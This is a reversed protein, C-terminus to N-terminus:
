GAVEVLIMKAESKRLAFRTAGVQVLIPDGGWPAYAVVTVPEGPVLGIDQLRQALMTTSDSHVIESVVAPQHRKLDSLHMEGWFSLSKSKRLISHRRWSRHLILSYIKM